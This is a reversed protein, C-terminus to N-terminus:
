PHKGTRRGDQHGDVGQAVRGGRCSPLGMVGGRSIACVISRGVVSNIIDLNEDRSLIRMIHVKSLPDGDWDNSFVVLDRGRLAFALDLEEARRM